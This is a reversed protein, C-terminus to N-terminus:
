NPANRKGRTHIFTFTLASLDLFITFQKSKESTKQVNFWIQLDLKLLSVSKQKYVDRSIRCRSPNTKIVYPFSREFIDVRKYFSIYRRIFSAFLFWVTFIACVLFHWQCYNTGHENMWVVNQKLQKDFICSFLLM